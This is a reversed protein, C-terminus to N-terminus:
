AFGGSISRNGTFILDVDDRPFIEDYKKHFKVNIKGNAQKMASYRWVEGYDNVVYIIFHNIKGKTDKVVRRVVQNPHTLDKFYFDRKILGNKIIEAKYKM